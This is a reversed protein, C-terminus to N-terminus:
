VWSVGGMWWRAEKGCDAAPAARVCLATPHRPPPSAAPLRRPSSVARERAAILDAMDAKGLPHARRQEVRLRRPPLLADILRSARGGGGRVGVGGGAGGRGTWGDGTRGAGDEGRGWGVAHWGLRRRAACRRRHAKQEKEPLKAIAEDLSKLVRTAKKVEAAFYADHGRATRVLVDAGAAILTQVTATHGERAAVMLPTMGPECKQQNQAAAACRTPYNVDAGADLLTQVTSAHGSYAAAHLASGGNGGRARLHIGAGAKILVKITETRGHFAALHLPTSGDDTTRNVLTPGSDFRRFIEEVFLAKDDGSAIAKLLVPYAKEEPPPAGKYPLKEREKETLRLSSDHGPEGPFYKYDCAVGVLAILLITARLMFRAEAGAMVPPRLGFCM